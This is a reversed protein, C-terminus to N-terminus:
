FICRQLISSWWCFIRLWWLSSVRTLWYWSSSWWRCAIWTLRIHHSLIIRHVTETSESIPNFIVMAQLKMCRQLISLWWCFIRSWWLSSVRTLWYWSSSWWWCAIWTLWIHHSLIIRHMTETSEYFHDFIVMIKLIHKQLFTQAFSFLSWIAIILSKLNVVGHM